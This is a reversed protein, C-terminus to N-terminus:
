LAKGRGPPLGTRALVTIGEFKKVVQYRGEHGDKLLARYYDAAAQRRAPRMLGAANDFTLYRRHFGQNLIVLDPRGAELDDLGPEWLETSNIFAQPIYVYPDHFITTRPPYSEALWRGVAMSPLNKYGAVQRQLALASDVGRGLPLALIVLAAGVGLWTRGSLGSILGALRNLGAAALWVLAPLIQLAHRPKPAAISFSLYVLNLLIWGALFIVPWRLGQDNNRAIVWFFGLASLGLGIWGWYGPHVMTRWFFWGEPVYSHKLRVTEMLFWEAVQGPHLLAASNSITLGLGFLAALALSLSFVACVLPRRTFFGFHWAMFTLGATLGALLILRTGALPLSRVWFPVLEARGTEEVVLAVAKALREPSVILNLALGMVLLGATLALGMVLGTQRQEWLTVPGTLAFSLALLPLFPALLASNLKIGAALGAALAGALLVKERHQKLGALLLGWAVILGALGLTDPHITKGWGVLLPLTCALAAAGAAGGPGLLRAGFWALGGLCALGGLVSLLRLTLAVERPGVQTALGALRAAGYPLQFYLSGYKYVGPDWSGRERMSLLTEVIATEDGGFTRIVAMDDVNALAMPLVLALYLALCSATVAKELAGARSM